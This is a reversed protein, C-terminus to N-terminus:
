AATSDRMETTSTDADQVNVKFRHLLDHLEFIELTVSSVVSHTAEVMMGNKQTITDILNVAESIERIRASQNGSGEAVSQVSTSITAISNTVQDLAMRAAKVLGVGEAVQKGSIKILERIELVAAGTRQALERVEHAVVAFGKGSEGARAAEVGANLALLNTQFAIQEIIDAITSIQASSREIEAMAGVAKFAVDRSRAAEASGHRAAAEADDAVKSAEVVMTVIEHLAASTEEVSTAQQETRRSLDEASRQMEAMDSSIVAVKRNARLLSASLRDMSMNFDIRLRDLEDKFPVVIRVTLDGDALRELGQAIASVASRTLEADQQKEAEQRRRQEGAIGRAQDAEREVELKKFANERFIKLARAMEGIEDPRDAGTVETSLEGSALKRMALTLAQIPSKLAIVLMVSAFLGFLAVVSASVLSLYEAQRKVLAAGTRQADAFSVIREWAENISGAASAYSEYRHNTEDILKEAQLNADHIISGAQDLLDRVPQHKKALPEYKALYVGVGKMKNQYKQMNVKTPDGLLEASAIRAEFIASDLKQSRSSNNGYDPIASPGITTVQSFLNARTEHLSRLSGSIAERTQLEGQYMTWLEHVKGQLALTIVQAKHLDALEDPSSALAINKDIQSVQDDLLKKVSTLSSQTTASLFLNMQEQAQKYGGLTLISASTGELRKDLMRSSLYNVGALTLIGVMLPLVLIIIKTQIRGKALLGSINM